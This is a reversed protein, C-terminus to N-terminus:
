LKYFYPRVLDIHSQITEGDDNQWENDIPVIYNQYKEIGDQLMEEYLSTREVIQKGESETTVEWNAVIGIIFYLQLTVKKLEDGSLDEPFMGTFAHSLEISSLSYGAWRNEWNEKNVTCYWSDLDDITLDIASFNRNFANSGIRNVSEPIHIQMKGCGSSYTFANIDICEVGNQIDIKVTDDGASWFYGAFSYPTIRKVNGPINVSTISSNYFAQEGINELSQPLRISTFNTAAFARYGIKKLGEPLTISTLDGNGDFTKDGIETVTSPLVLDGSVDKAYLVKTMEKNYIINGQQSHFKNTAPINTTFYQYNDEGISQLNDPINSIKWRESDGDLCGYELTTISNPLQIYIFGNDGNLATDSESIERGKAPSTLWNLAEEGMANSSTDNTNTVKTGFLKVALSLRAKQKYTDYRSVAIANTKITEVGEPIIILRSDIIRLHHLTKGDKSLLFGDVSKYYKNKPTAVVTEMFETNIYKTKNPIIFTTPRRFGNELRFMDSDYISDIGTTQSMDLTNITINESVKWNSHVHGNKWNLRATDIKGKITIDYTGPALNSLTKVVDPANITIATPSTQAAANACIILAAILSTLKAKMIIHKQPTINPQIVSLPLPITHM